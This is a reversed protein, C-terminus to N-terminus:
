LLVSLALLRSFLLIIHKEDDEYLITSLALKLRKKSNFFLSLTGSLLVNQSNRSCSISFFIMMPKNL